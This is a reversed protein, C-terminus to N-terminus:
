CPDEYNRWYRSEKGNTSKTASSGTQRIGSTYFRKKAEKYALSVLSDLFESVQKKTLDNKKALHDVIQAKTIPKAPQM